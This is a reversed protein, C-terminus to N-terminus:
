KVEEYDVYEGQDGNSTRRRKKKKKDLFDVKMSGVTRSKTKPQAPQVTGFVQAFWRLVMRLLVLVLVLVFIYKLIRFM